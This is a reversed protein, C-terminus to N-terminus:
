YSGIKIISDPMFVMLDSPKLQVSRFFPMLSKREISIRAYNDLFSFRALAHAVENAKRSCHEFSINRFGSLIIRCDNLITTSTMSSFGCEEMNGSQIIFNTTGLQQALSLGEGLAYADAMFYDAVFHIEKCNAIRFKGRSDRAVAGMGDKGQDVDYSADMNIKIIGEPRRPCVWAEKWAAVHKKARWYNTAVGIAMASRYTVQLDGGHMFSQREWWVYWARTLITEAIGIGGLSGWTGSILIMQEIIGSGLRDLRLIEDSKDWLSIKEWVKQSLWL